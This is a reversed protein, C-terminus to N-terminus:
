DSHSKEWNQGEKIYQTVRDIVKEHLKGNQLQLIYEIISAYKNLLVELDKPKMKKDAKGKATEKSM